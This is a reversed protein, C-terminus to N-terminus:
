RRLQDAWRIVPGSIALGIVLGIADAAMDYIDFSRGEVLIQLVETFASFIIGILFVLAYHFPQRNYDFRVALAWAIFMAIHIVKDYGGISVDPLNSGPILVAIIILVSVFFTTFKM